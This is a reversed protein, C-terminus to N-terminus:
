FGGMRKKPASKKKAAAAPRGGFPGPLVQTSTMLGQSEVEEPQMMQSEVGLVHPPLLAPQTTSFAAILPPLQTPQPLSSPPPPTAESPLREGRRGRQPRNETKLEASVGYPDKFVYKEPDSGFAWDNLLSQVGFPFAVDEEGEKLYYNRRPTPQLYHFHVPFGSVEKDDGEPLQSAPSFPVPSFIDKSLALDLALQEQDKEQRRLAQVPINSNPALAFSRLRETVTRVDGVTSNDFHGLIPAINLHWSAGKELDEIPLHGQSLIRYGRASNFISQSLFDARSPHKPEEGARFLIDYTTLVQEIPTDLRQWFSPLDGLLDYVAEANAEEQANIDGIRPFIREYAPRLNTESFERAELLGTERRNEQFDPRVPLTRVGDTINPSDRQALQICSIRGRESIRFMTFNDGSNVFADGSSQTEPVDFSFSYPMDGMHLLHDASRSVDYVTVLKNKRSTVLSHRYDHLELTHVALTRDYNRRHKIGFLAKGPFRRDLWLVRETTALQILYDERSDEIFTLQEDTTINLLNLALDSTRFDLEQVIKSSTLLCGDESAGALALQWFQDGSDPNKIGTFALRKFSNELNCKYVAGENNVFLVDSQRSHFKIDVPIRHGLDDRLVTASESIKLHPDDSTACVRLIATSGFTRAALFTGLSISQSSVLQLIPTAFSKVPKVSPEFILRQELSAFPSINLDCGTEGMPFVLFIPTSHADPIHLLELTNGSFPDYQELARTVQADASLEQRVLEAAIDIDPFHTRLFNAGQEVRQVMSTSPIDLKPPRTPKFVEVPSGASLRQGGSLHFPSTWQFHSKNEVLTVAEIRGPELYDIGSPPIKSKGKRNKKIQAKGQSQIDQPWFEM